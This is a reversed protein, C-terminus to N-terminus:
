LLLLTKGLATRDEIAAHADAARELPFTQGIVPRVAGAEARAMMREAWRVAHEGFGFLQEIGIVEVGRRRAEAPDIVTARGGAAGHVSFRGGRATVEFAAPGIPEGVGDFVVDVGAGGTADLVRGTWGPESYDVVADAGLARVLDLKRTGRAAGVVRAGAARALQVLLSGVGGAAAEVLVWEGSRIGAGEVLGQATSGDSHLAVAEPLGLGDPVPFLEEVAAVAREAFGGHEGTGAIVRRGLWAPDVGPGVSAVRGAVLSGPVYPLEPRPHWPDTGRRMQTEVFSMGAVEVDVTVQGPGAVPDPAEALELVEPGGFRVAQVVRM